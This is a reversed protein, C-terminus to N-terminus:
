SFLSFGACHSLTGDSEFAVTCDLAIGLPMEAIDLFPNILLFSLSPVWPLCLPHYCGARFAPRNPAWGQWKLSVMESLGQYGERALGLGPLAHPQANLLSFLWEEERGLLLFVWEGGKEERPASM